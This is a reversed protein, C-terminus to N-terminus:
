KKKKNNNNSITIIENNHKKKIKYKKAIFNLQKESNIILIHYCKIIIENTNFLNIM